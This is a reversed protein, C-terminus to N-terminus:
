VIMHRNLCTLRDQFTKYIELRTNPKRQAWFVFGHKTVSLVKKLEVAPWLKWFVLHGATRYEWYIECDVWHCLVFVSFEINNRYMLALNLNGQVFFSKQKMMVDVLYHQLTNWSWFPVLAYLNKGGTRWPLRMFPWSTIVDFTAQWAMSQVSFLLSCGFVRSWCFCSISIGCFRSTQDPDRSIITWFPQIKEIQLIWQSYPVAPWKTNKVGTSWNGAMTIYGCREKTLCLFSKVM